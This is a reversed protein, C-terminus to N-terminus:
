VAHFNDTHPTKRTGIKGRESQIGISVRIEGYETQIRSFLSWFFELYPCKERLSDELGLQTKESLRDLRDVIFTFLICKSGQSVDIISSKASVTVAKSCKATKEFAEMNGLLTRQM